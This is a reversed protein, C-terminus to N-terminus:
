RKDIRAILAKAEASAPALALARTAESRAAAADGLQLLAEALALRAESSERSWLAVRLEDAAERPRGTRLYIRGILVHPEAEYPALYIAKRLEALADRNQEQAFLRRARELHFGALEKQERQASGLLAADLRAGHLAEIEISVRELGRPVAEGGSAARKEWEAYKSSLQRALERERAAETTAGAAQLAAGLVFHADGDATNRRVAERLWYIAAQGDRDLWYAYGLNFFYDSEEADFESAKSFFYTARGAQPPPPRRIQVIGLNNYLAAAPQEDLLAKFTTFAEDFRKLEILSCGAAFRARRSVRSDAAVAHAAAFARAHNGQETYVDWLALQARDYNPFAALAGQLFKIQTSPQDAVLGKVYNEFAELPPQTGATAGGSVAPGAATLGMLRRAVRDHLAFLDRLSARDTTQELVRGTDLKIRRADLVLDAGSVRLSGVILDSAAVLQGVRILSAMSLSPGAPLNLHEFARTREARTLAPLGAARLADTLLLASAEGLWVERPDRDSGEFPMVLIRTTGPPVQASASTVHAGLSTALCIVVTLAERVRIV